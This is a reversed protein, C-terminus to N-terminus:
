FLPHGVAVVLAQALEVAIGGADGGAPQPQPDPGQFAVHPLGGPRPHPQAVARAPLHARPRDGVSVPLTGKGRGRPVPEVLAQLEFSQSRPPLVPGVELTPAFVPPVPLHEAGGTHARQRFPQGHVAGPGLGKGHGESAAVPRVLVSAPHRGGVAPEVLVRSIGVVTGVEGKEGAVLDIEVDAEVGTGPPRRFDPAADGGVIGAVPMTQAVDQGPSGVVHQGVVVLPVVAVGLRIGLIGVQPRQLVLPQALRPLPGCAM